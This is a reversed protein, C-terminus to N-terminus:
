YTNNLFRVTNYFFPIGANVYGPLKDYGWYVFEGQRAVSYYDVSDPDDAWYYLEDTGSDATNRISWRHALGTSSTTSATFMTVDYDTDYRHADYTSDHKLYYHWIYNSDGDFRKMGAKQTDGKNYAYGLGSPLQGTYGWGAAYNKITQMLRWGYYHMGMLGKAGLTINKARSYSNASSYLLAASPTTIIPNGYVITENYGDDLYTTPILSEPVLTVTYPVYSGIRFSYSSSYDSAWDKTIWTRTTSALSTDDSDSDDYIITMDSSFGISYPTYNTFGIDPNYVRMFIYFLTGKTYSSGPYYSTSTTSGKQTKTGTPSTSYYIYYTNTSGTESPYTEYYTDIDGNNTYGKYSNEIVPDGYFISDDVQTYHAAEQTVSNRSYVGAYDSFQVIVKKAGHNDSLDQSRSTAASYWGSWTTGNTSIRM